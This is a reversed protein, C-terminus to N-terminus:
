SLPRQIKTTNMPLVSKQLRLNTKLAIPDKENDPHQRHTKVFISVAPKATTERLSKLTAKM